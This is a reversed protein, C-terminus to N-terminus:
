YCSLDLCTRYLYYMYNLYVYDRYASTKTIHHQQLLNRREDLSARFCGVQM